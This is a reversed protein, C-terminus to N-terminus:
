LNKIEKKLSPSPYSVIQFLKKVHVDEGQEEDAASKINIIEVKVPLSHVAHGWDASCVPRHRTM